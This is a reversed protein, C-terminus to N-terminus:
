ISEIIPNQNRDAERIYVRKVGAIADHLGLAAGSADSCVFPLPNNEQAAAAPDLSLRGPCAVSLVGSFVSPRVEVPVGDLVGAPITLEVSDQGVGSALLPVSGTAAATDAIEAICGEVSGSAPTECAVWAWEIDRGEPDYSTAQFRVTEGPAAYPNDAQVALVRLSSVHSGPDFDAGCGVLAGAGLLAALVLVSKSNM